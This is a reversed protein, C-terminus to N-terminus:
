IPSCGIEVALPKLHALVTWEPGTRRSEAWAMLSPGVEPGWWEHETGLALLEDSPAFQLDCNFQWLDHEINELAFQRTLTLHFRPRGSFSHIGYQYLLMDTDPIDPTAFSVHAFELFHRWASEVTLDAPGHGTQQLLEAFVLAADVPSPKTSPPVAQNRPNIHLYEDLAAVLSAALHPLTTEAWNRAAGLFDQLDRESAALLETLRESGIDLTPEPSTADQWLRIYGNHHELRPDPSHGLFIDHGDAAAHWDRWSELGCCCGPLFEAGTATDHFGLGGPANLAEAEALHRDLLAADMGQDFPVGNYDLIVAIATGVELPTMAGSLALYRRGSLDSIPWATFDDLPEVELVVDVTIMNTPTTV